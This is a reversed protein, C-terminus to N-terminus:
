VHVHYHFLFVTTTACGIHWFGHAAPFVACLPSQENHSFVWILFSALLSIAAGVFCFVKFPISIENPSDDENSSKVTSYKVSAFEGPFVRSQRIDDRRCKACSLALLEAANLLSYIGICIGFIIPTTREVVPLGNVFPDTLYAAVNLVVSLAVWVVVQFVVVGLSTGCRLTLSITLLFALYILIAIYDMWGGWVSAYGHYAMSGIGMNVVIMPYLFEFLAFRATQYSMYIGAVIFAINSWANFKQNFVGTDPLECFDAPGRNIDISTALLVFVSSVLFLQHLFKMRELKLDM